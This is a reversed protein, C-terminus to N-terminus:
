KREITSALGDLLYPVAIAIFPTVMIKNSVAPTFPLVSGGTIALTLMAAAPAVATFLSSQILKSSKRLAYSSVNRLMSMFSEGWTRKSGHDIGEKKFKEIM